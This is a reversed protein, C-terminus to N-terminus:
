TLSFDIISNIYINSDNNIIKEIIQNEVKDKIVKAIKRAGFM